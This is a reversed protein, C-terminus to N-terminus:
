SHSRIWANLGTAESLRRLTIHMRYNWPNHPDAPDNIQEAAPDARHLSPDDATAIWDQLPLIVLMSPSQLHLGVIMRATEPTLTRPAEGSQHLVSTWYRQSRQPDQEWWLRLPPMDHTSTTAVSAYPYTSTDAFERDVADPMRQVKLSLIRLQHLVDPVCAPIMGLDEACTLMATADILPPLKWLAQRRWFDDNRVYYFDHYLADYARQQLEPLAKYAATHSGDIRPHYADPREPDPLFLVDDILSLMNDCVSADPRESDPLSYFHRLIDRQTGFGPRLLYHGPAQPDPTLYIQRIDGAYPGFTDALVQDTIWPSTHLHSDFRFNYGDHIEEPTLPLAPSFTGLLGHTQSAPIQWIRFFGLIHDIRYADFYDAMKSFRARWWAFGDRSMAQWNYTPFGWNQGLRAFPDPPAGASADLNFLQPWQWADVSTPSIGIPIDGKLCIGTLHCYDRVHRLQRDLHYQLFYHFGIEEPQEQALRGILTPHYHAYLGWQRYDPTHHLDRLTCYAAYPLLWTDNRSVFDRYEATAQLAKGELAYLRRAYDLKLRLAGAYDAAELANLAAARERMEATLDPDHLSGMAEPRLYVPNLAFTSIANYPYADGGDYSKTTDNVPLIQIIRQGTAAAWDALPMLDYFDGIGYDDASRLSFVPVATGTAKWLPLPDIYQPLEILRQQTDYHGVSPPLRLNDGQPWAVSADRGISIIKFEMARAQEPTLDLTAQWLPFASDDLPFAHEPDWLGLQPLNGAIALRRSPDITPAQISLTLWGRSDLRPHTPRRNVVDRLLSSYFPADAPRDHWRDEISLPGRQLAVTRPRGWETRVPLSVGDRLLIYSYSLSTPADIDAEATWHGSGTHTMRLATAPAGNGLAPCDGSVALQEGWQTHYHIHFRVKM